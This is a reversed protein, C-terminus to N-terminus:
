HIETTTQYKVNKAPLNDFHIDFITETVKGLAEWLIQCAANQKLM